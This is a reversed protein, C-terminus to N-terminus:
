GFAAVSIPGSPWNEFVQPPNCAQELIAAFQPRPILRAGLSTLHQSEVQCDLIEFDNDSLVRCLGLLAFKSANSGRSFMSEGFFAKGIALGYVGGILTDGEWAEASHAWGLEHLRVYADTMEDTIWTGHQQPRPEACAAVVDAFATNFRLKASSRRLAKRLSRSVHFERPFFVCRPDPSWWLIPQGEDYWPFIGARYAALLREPSLDGGAALLGDPEQLADAIDPFTDMGADADLWCITKATM